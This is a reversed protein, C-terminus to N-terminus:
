RLTGSFVQWALASKAVLSLLIFIKEGFLYDRWRGVKGYQLFMNLAFINFFIFISILIGYVFAPMGEVSRASSVFYMAIVIWPVIGALCGFVFATWSTKERTQNTLEMMYGFLIMAANLSFILILSSLDYMGCIMAIVVIMLSSSVSYELWRAYNAGLRLNKVYWGFLVTALLFHALASILLFLAVMPGVRLHGIVQLDTFGQHAATDWKLYSTTVPLSFDNSLALMLIAQLLHLFGMVANYSRLRRYKAEVEVM